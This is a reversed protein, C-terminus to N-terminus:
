PGLRLAPKVSSPRIDLIVSTMLIGHQKLWCALSQTVFELRADCLDPIFELSSPCLVKTGVLANTLTSKGSNPVGVVGAELLRQQERPVAAAQASGKSVPEWGQAWPPLWEADVEASAHSFTDASRPTPTGLWDARRDTPADSSPVPMDPAAADPFALFPETAAAAAAAGFAEEFLV